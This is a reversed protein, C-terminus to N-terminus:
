AKEPLILHHSPLLISVVTQQELHIKSILLFVSTLSVVPSSWGTIPLRTASAVFSTANSSILLSKSVASPFPLVRRISYVSCRKFSFFIPKKSVILFSLEFVNAVIYLIVNDPFCLSFFNNFASLYSNCRCNLAALEPLDTWVASIRFCSNDGTGRERALGPPSIFVVGFGSKSDSRAVAWSMLVGGSTGLLM